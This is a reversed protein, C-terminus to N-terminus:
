AIRKSEVIPVGYSLALDRFILDMLSSSSEIGERGQVHGAPEFATGVFHDVFLSLPVGYQLGISVATAFCAMLGRVAAGQKAIDLFIDGLRGDEYEGTRIYLKQGGMYVKQTYGGRRAPLDERAIDADGKILCFEDRAHAIRSDLEACEECDDACTELGEQHEERLCYNEALIAAWRAKDNLM